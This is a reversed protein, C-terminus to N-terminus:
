NKCADELSQVELNRARDRKRQRSNRAYQRNKRRRREAKLEAAEEASLGATKLFQNLERTSLDLVDNSWSPRQQNRKRQSQIRQMAIRVQPRCNPNAPIHNFHGMVAPAQIQVAHKFNPAQQALMDLDFTPPTGELTPTTPVEAPAAQGTCAHQPERVELLDLLQQDPPFNFVCDSMVSDLSSNLSSSSWDSWDSCAPSAPGESGATPLLDFSLSVMAEMNDFLNDINMHPITVQTM